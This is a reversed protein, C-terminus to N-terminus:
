RKFVFAHNESFIRMEIYNWANGEIGGFGRFNFVLRLCEFLKESELM